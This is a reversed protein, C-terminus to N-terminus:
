GKHGDSSRRRMYKSYFCERMDACQYPIPVDSSQFYCTVSKHSITILRGSISYKGNKEQIKYVRVSSHLIYGKASYQGCFHTLLLCLAAVYHLRCTEDRKAMLRIQFISSFCKKTTLYLNMFMPLRALKCPKAVAVTCTCVTSDKKLVHSVRSNM